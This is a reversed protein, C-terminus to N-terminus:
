SEHQASRRLQLRTLSCSALADMDAVGDPHLQHAARVDQLSPHLANCGADFIAVAALTRAKQGIHIRGEVPDAQGVRARGCRAPAHPSSM